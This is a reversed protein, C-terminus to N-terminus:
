GEGEPRFHDAVNEWQQALDEYGTARLWAPLCGDYLQERGAKWCEEDSDILAVLEEPSQAARGPLLEYPLDPDLTYVVEVLTAGPTSARARIEQLRLALSQDHTNFSDYFQRYRIHRGGLQPNELMMRALGRRDRAVLDDDLKYSFTQGGYEQPSVPVDDGRLWRQIEEYGWRESRAKHLLGRILQQFRSSCDQPPFIDESIHTVIIQQETMDAFPSEGTILFLLNIGLAYYDVEMGFQNQSLEPAAFEVTKSGRASHHLSLDGKVLSSIGYDGLLVRDKAEDAFFLNTPKIDRHIINREHLYHLAEVVQPIIVERLRDESFPMHEALTGGAAYEMVELFRRNWTAFDLLQIINSHELQLLHELLEGDPRLDGRYLKVAVRRDTEMDRCVFVDAEGGSSAVERIVRYRDAILTDRELHGLAPRSTQGEEEALPATRGAGLRDTKEGDLRDTERM